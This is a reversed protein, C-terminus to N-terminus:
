VHAVSTVGKLAESDVIYCGIGRKYCGRYCGLRNFILLTVGTVGKISYITVRLSRCVSRLSCSQLAYYRYNSGANQLCQVIARLREGGAHATDEHELWCGHRGAWQQSSSPM